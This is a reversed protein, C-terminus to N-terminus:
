LYLYSLYIIPYRIKLIKVICPKGDPITSATLLNPVNAYAEGDITIKLADSVHLRTSSKPLCKATNYLELAADVSGVTIMQNSYKLSITDLVDLDPRSVHSKRLLASFKEYVGVTICALCIM